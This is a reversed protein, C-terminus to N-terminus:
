APSFGINKTKREEKVSKTDVGCREVELVFSDVNHLCRELLGNGFVHGIMQFARSGLLRGHFGKCRHTHQTCRILTVSVKWTLILPYM